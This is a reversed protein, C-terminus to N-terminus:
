FLFIIINKYMGAICVQRSWIDKSGTEHNNWWIGMPDGELYSVYCGKPSYSNSDAFQFNAGVTAGVKKSSCEEETEITATCLGGLSSLFYEKGTDFNM